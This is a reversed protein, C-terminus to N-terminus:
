MITTEKKEIYKNVLNAFSEIQYPYEGAAKECFIRSSEESMYGIEALTEVIEDQIFYFEERAETWESGNNEEFKQKFEEFKGSDDLNRELDALFPNSACYGQMENFVKHLVSIIAVKSQKADVDSKSDINFLVVDTPVNAALKMDALVM